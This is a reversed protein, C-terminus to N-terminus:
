FHTKNDLALGYYTSPQKSNHNLRQQLISRNDGISSNGNTNSNNNNHSNYIKDNSTKNFKNLYQQNNDMKLNKSKDQNLSQHNNITQVHSQPVWLNTLHNDYYNALKFFMPKTYVPKPAVEPPTDDTDLENTLKVLKIRNKLNSLKDKSQVDHVKSYKSNFNNNSLEPKTMKLTSNHTNSSSYYNPYTYNIFIPNKSNFEDALQNSHYHITNNGMTENLDILKSKTKSSPLTSFLYNENNVKNSITVIKNMVKNKSDGMMHNENLLHNSNKVGSIYLKTLNPVSTLHQMHSTNTKHLNKMNTSNLSNEYHDGLNILSCKSGYNFHAKDYGNNPILHNNQDQDLISECSDNKSLNLQSLKTYHHGNHAGSHIFLKSHSPGFSTPYNSDQDNNCHFCVNSMNLCDSSKRNFGLAKLKDEKSGNQCIMTLRKDYLLNTNSHTSTLRPPPEPAIPSCSTNVLSKQYVSQLTNKSIPSTKADIMNHHFIQNFNAFSDSRQNTQHFYDHRISCKNTPPEAQAHLYDFKHPFTDAFGNHIGNTSLYKSIEMSKVRGQNINANSKHNTSEPFYNFWSHQLGNTPNLRENPQWHLCSSILDILFDNDKDFHSNQHDSYGNLNLVNLHLDTVSRSNNKKYRKCRSTTIAKFLSFSGPLGRVHGDRKSVGPLIQPLGNGEIHRVVCYRPIYFTNNIKIVKKDFFLFSSKAYSDLNFEVFYRDFQNSEKLLNPPPFGLVEIICAMQDLEDEGPFLPLGKKTIM